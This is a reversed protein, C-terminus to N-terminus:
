RYPMNSANRMDRSNIPPTIEFIFRTKMCVYFGALFTDLVLLTKQKSVNMSCPNKKEHIIFSNIFAIVINLCNTQM